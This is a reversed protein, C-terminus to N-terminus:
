EESCEIVHNVIVRMEQRAMLQSSTLHTSDMDFVTLGSDFHNKYVVRETIGDLLTFGMNKSLKKLFGFMKEKNKNFLVSLRNRLVIWHTIQGQLSRQKKLEWMFSGYAGLNSTMMNNKVEMLLDLDLMSDNLPTIIINSLTHTHKTMETLAGPTDIIIFDYFEKKDEIINNLTAIDSASMCEIHLGTDTRNGIYRSLSYQPFDTDICLVRYSQEMLGTCLNMSITSKGSGGKINAITIIYSM